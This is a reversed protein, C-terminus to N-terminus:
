PRFVKPGASLLAKYEPTLPFLRGPDILLEPAYLQRRLTKITQLQGAGIPDFALALAREPDQLLDLTVALSLDLMEHCFDRHCLPGPFALDRASFVRRLNDLPREMAQRKGLIFGRKYIQKKLLFPLPQRQTAALLQRDADRLGPQFLRAAQVRSWKVEWDARLEVLVHSVKGGGSTLGLMTPVYYNHAVTDAALHALYGYAYAARRQAVPDEALQALGDPMAGVLIARGTAWNHSHRPKRRSGKGIFIDASLSGYLFAEAQAALTKVLAPALATALLPLNELIHNGIAMHVGPGWAWLAAPALALSCLTLLAIALVHM